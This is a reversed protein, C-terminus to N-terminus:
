HSSVSRSPLEGSDHQPITKIKKMLSMTKESPKVGFKAFLTRECRAYVDVADSYRNKKLYCTILRQYFVEALDDVEMGRQYIEIASNYQKAAEYDSGLKLVCKLFQTRLRESRSLAWPANCDTGLFSGRYLAIAQRLGSKGVQGAQTGHQILREFAWVDVWCYNPNLSLRSGQVLLAQESGLIKRLRHVSSKYNQHGTDGDAEPWLSDTLVNESVDKGGFAILAKLLELPKKQAKRSPQYFAGDVSLSFEALTYIKVKWPWTELHALSRGPILGCREVFHQVAPVEIGGELARACLDTIVSPIFGFFFTYNNSKSLTLAQQLLSLGRTEDNDDFALHAAALLYIYDARVTTGEPYLVRFCDLHTSAAESDGIASLAYVLLNHAFGLPFSIGIRKCLELSLQLEQIADQPTGRVLASWGALQYM